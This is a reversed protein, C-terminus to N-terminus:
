GNNMVGEIVDPILAGSFLTGMFNVSFVIFSIVCAIYLLTRIFDSIERGFALGAGAAVLSLVSATYAFPGTIFDRIQQLASVGPLQSGSPSATSAVAVEAFLVLIIIVYGTLLRAPWNEKFM